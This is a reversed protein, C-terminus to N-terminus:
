PATAPSPAPIIPANAADPECRLAPIGEIKETVVRFSDAFCWKKSLVKVATVRTPQHGEL